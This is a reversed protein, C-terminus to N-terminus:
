DWSGPVDVIPRQRGGTYVFAKGPAAPVSQVTCGAYAGAEDQYHRRHDELGLWRLGTQHYHFQLARRRLSSRNPATYHHLLAHFILADGPEMEISVRDGGRLCDPRIECQNMDAHPLHVVPGGLHSGPIVEMCGNEHRAPDLAIWVGAILHPDSVRFYAADQHWPKASGIRPPKILAMDQFLVRGEGLIQDLARHLRPAMAAARLPESDEVYWAFKRIHDERHEPRLAAPDVGAEFAIETSRAPLRGSALGMIDSVCADVHREGIARRLLVYGDQRYAAVDDATLPDSSGLDRTKM